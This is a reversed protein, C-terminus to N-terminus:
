EDLEEITIEDDNTMVIRLGTVKEIHKIQEDIDNGSLLTRSYKMINEMVRKLREAGFGEERLALASWVLICKTVNANARKQVALVAKSFQNM